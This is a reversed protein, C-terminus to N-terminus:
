TRGNSSTSINTNTVWEMLHNPKTPCTYYKNESYPIDTLHGAATNCPKNCNSCVYCLFKKTKKDYHKLDETSGAGCGECKHTYYSGRM